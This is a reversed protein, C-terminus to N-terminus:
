RVRRVRPPKPLRLPKWGAITRACERAQVNDSIGPFRRRLETAASLEGRQQYVVRIAAALPDAQRPRGRFRLPREMIQTWAKSAKTKAALATAANSAMELSSSGPLVRPLPGSLTRYDPKGRGGRHRTPTRHQRRRSAASATDQASVCGASGVPRLRLAVAWIGTRRRAGSVVAAPQGARPPIRRSTQATPKPSVRGARGERRRASLWPPLNIRCYPAVPQRYALPRGFANALIAM